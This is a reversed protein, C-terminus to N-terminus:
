LQVVIWENPKMLKRKLCCVEKHSMPEFGTSPKYETGSKVHKLGYRKIM